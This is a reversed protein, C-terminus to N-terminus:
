NPYVLRPGPPPEPDGRRHARAALHGIVLYCAVMAIQEEAENEPPREALAQLTEHAPMLEDYKLELDAEIAEAVERSPKLKRVDAM